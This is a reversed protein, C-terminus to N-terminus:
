TQLAVKIYEFLIMKKHKMANKTDHQDLLPIRCVSSQKDGAIRLCSVVSLRKTFDFSVIPRDRRFLLLSVHMISSTARKRLICSIVLASGAYRGMKTLSLTVPLSIM